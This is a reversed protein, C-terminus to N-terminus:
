TLRMTGRFGIPYPSDANNIATNKTANVAMNAETRCM